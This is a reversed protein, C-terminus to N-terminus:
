RRNAEHCHVSWLLNKAVWLSTLTWFDSVVGDFSAPSPVLPLVVLVEFHRRWSPSHHEDM